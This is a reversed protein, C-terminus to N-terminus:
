IALECLPEVPSVRPNSALLEQRPLGDSRSNVCTRAPVVIPAGEVGKEPVWDDVM